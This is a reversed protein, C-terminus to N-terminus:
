RLRQRHEAIGCRRASKPASPDDIEGGTLPDVRTGDPAYFSQPESYVPRDGNWEREWEFDPCTVEQDDPLPLMGAIFPMFHGMLEAVANTVDFVGPAIFSWGGEAALPGSSETAGDPVAGRGPGYLRLRQVMGPQDRFIDWEFPQFQGPHDFIARFRRAAQMAETRSSPLSGWGLDGSLWDIFRSMSSTPPTSLGVKSAVRVLFGSWASLTGYYTQFFQLASEQLRRREDATSQVEGTIANVSFDREAAGV